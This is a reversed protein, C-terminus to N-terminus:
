RPQRAVSMLWICVAILEEALCTIHLQNSYYACKDCALEFTYLDMTVIQM